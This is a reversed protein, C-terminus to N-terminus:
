HKRTKPPKRHSTKKANAPIIAPLGYSKKAPVGKVRKKM